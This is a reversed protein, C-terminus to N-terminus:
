FFQKRLSITVSRGVPELLFPQYSIPTEGFQDRVRVREDFLNNVNLSIRTGRLFPIERVLDRQQGLNAFLRLNVTTRPAFELDSGGVGTVRTGSQWDVDLRGGFGDRFLNARFELQHRPTGGGNGAASGNLFDLEPVGERILVRDELRWTHFLSFQMRGGGGGFGGFGRGGGGFGGGRRGGGGARPGRPREGQADPAGAGEPAGAGPAEPADTGGSGGPGGGRRGGFGGFRGGQRQPGWPASFDIGWRFERRRSESFNIPRTDVSVLRGSGDRVFRDPFAAEIEATAAPFSAIPNIIRNDTYNARISLNEMPRVNLGLNIVRRSDALLDPNGGDIRTIDVTEGRVFDFIRVNPTAIVPDGLQTISPAGDEHTASAIFSIWDTPRWNLGYGVTTLTGFDSLHEANLNLNLTLDGIADLVGERTSTVPLDFNAQGEFRERSLSTERFVGSRTSSSDLSRLEVGASLSASLPGAWGDIIPGNAVLNSTFAQNITEATDAPAAALRETATDTEVRDYNATLNWRWPAIDGNMALGLHGNWTDSERTLASTSSPDDEPLGLLARSQAQSFRADITAGVNGFIQRSHQASAEITDSGPLLTRFDGSDLGGPGVPTLQVIDRESELLAAQNQYELDFSTRTPGAITLYNLDAEVRERGGATAIGGELEATVANFRRRLVLNVVRQDARYGYRLAVEEPLIDVRQIAEPPLDRVESFSSIRRGNVLVVPRGGGRGRGSGTQPALVDLLEAVNSTGLARIERGSLTIEPPTDGIVAGRQGIRNGTVVIEEEDAAADLLEDDTLVPSGPQASAAEGGTAAAADPAAAPAPEVDTQQALAPFSVGSLAAALVLRHSRV